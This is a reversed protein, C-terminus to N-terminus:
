YICIEGDMMTAIDLASSDANYIELEFAVGNREYLTFETPALGNGHLVEMHIYPRMPGCGPNIGDPRFELIFHFPTIARTIEKEKLSNLQRIIMSKEPFEHQLLFELFTVEMRNFVPNTILRM